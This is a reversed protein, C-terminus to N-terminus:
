ESDSNKKDVKGRKIILSRSQEPNFKMRDWKMQKELRRFLCREGAATTTLTLEDM